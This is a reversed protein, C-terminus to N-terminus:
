NGQLSRSIRSSWAWSWPTWISFGTFTSYKVYSLLLDFLALFGSGNITLISNSAFLGRLIFIVDIYFFTSYCFFCSRMPSAPKPLTPAPTYLFKYLFWNRSFSLVPVSSMTFFIATRLGSRFLSTSTGESINVVLQCSRISSGSISIIISNIPPTSSAKLKIAAASLAFLATTVPLLATSASLPFSRM